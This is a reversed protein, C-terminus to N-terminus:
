PNLQRYVATAISLMTERPLEGSLAYGFGRDLWYFTALADQRAFRFATDTGADDRRLFLTLRQGSASEFMFQAALGDRSDPLLRGGVLRFGLPQLDPVELPSGLRKSLWAVLHGQDSAGVEVPHRVEPVFAAHAIAAARVLPLGAPASPAALRAPSGADRVAWGIVVGAGLAALLAAVQLMRQPGRTAGPGARARSVSEGRAAAVLQPPVPEDLGDDLERRLAEDDRRLAHALAALAPDAALAQEVRPADDPALRGDIWAHLSADDIPPRAETM